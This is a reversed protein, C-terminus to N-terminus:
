GARQDPGQARADARGNRPVLASAMQPSSGSLEYCWRPSLPPRTIRASCAAFQMRGIPRASCRVWGRVVRTLKNNNGSVGASRVGDIERRPPYAKRLQDFAARRQAEDGRLSRRFAADDSRPDYVARCLTALLTCPDASGDYSLAQLAQARMLEDLTVTPALGQAACFAQYVQATGRLKGDLSYGAIHPTALQCLEALAVDVQPEGERVDLVAQLDPRRLLLERLAANDVM